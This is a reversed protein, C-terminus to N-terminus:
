QEELLLIDAREASDRELWDRGRRYSARLARISVQIAEKAADRVVADKVVVGHVVRSRVDYVKALAKRLARRRAADGELLKALAATVRFTVETSTGVLNEWSMVADILADGHDVRRAIASVLRRAALDV